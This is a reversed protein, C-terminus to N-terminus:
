GQIVKNVYSCEIGNEVLHKWTGQTAVLEFGRDVLERALPVLSEKDADRVSLFVRGSMKVVIGVGQQARAVASGFSLGVGMAEGTSRMEPTLIPDVGQFKIFPFIPEKISYFPSSLNGELGQEELTKGVMCRAAVQAIAVGTAKSV